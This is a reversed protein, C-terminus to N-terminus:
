YACQPCNLLVYDNILKIIDENSIETDEEIIKQIFTNLIIAIEDKEETEEANKYIIHEKKYLYKM